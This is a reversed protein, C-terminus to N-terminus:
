PLRSVEALRAKLASEIRDYWEALREETLEKWSDNIESDGLLHVKEAAGPFRDLATRKHRETM